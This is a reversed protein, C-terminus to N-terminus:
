VIEKKPYNIAKRKVIIWAYHNLNRSEERIILGNPGRINGIVMDDDTDNCYYMDTVEFVDKWGQRTLTDGIKINLRNHLPKSRSM